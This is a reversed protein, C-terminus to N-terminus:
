HLQSLAEFHSLSFQLLDVLATFVHVPVSGVVLLFLKNICELVFHWFNKLVDVGIKVLKVFDIVENRFHLARVVNLFHLFEFFLNIISTGLNILTLTEDVFKFVFDDLPFGELFEASSVFLKTFDVVEETVKVGVELALTVHHLFV